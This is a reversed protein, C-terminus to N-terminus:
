EEREMAAFYERAISAAGPEDFHSGVDPGEKWSACENLAKEAAQVKTDLSKVYALLERIATPNCAAIFAATAETAAKINDLATM